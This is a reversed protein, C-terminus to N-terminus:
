LHRGVRAREGPYKNAICSSYRARLFIRNSITTRRVLAMQDFISARIRNANSEDGDMICCYELASYNGKSRKPKGRVRSSDKVVNRQSHEEEEAEKKM